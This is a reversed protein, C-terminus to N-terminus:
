WRPVDHTDAARDWKLRGRSCPRKILVLLSEPSISECDSDSTYRKIITLVVIAPLITLTPINPIAKMATPVCEDRWPDFVCVRAM